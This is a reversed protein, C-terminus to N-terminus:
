LKQVQRAMTLGNDTNCCGASLTCGKKWCLMPAALCETLTCKDSQPEAAYHAATSLHRRQSDPACLCPGSCLSLCRDTLNCNDLNLDILSTLQQLSTIGADSLSVYALDLQTLKQLGVLYTLGTLVFLLKLGSVVPMVRFVIGCFAALMIANFLSLITM